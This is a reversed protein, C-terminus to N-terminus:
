EAEPIGEDTKTMIEPTEVTRLYLGYAIAIIVAALIYLRDAAASDSAFCSFMDILSHSIIVPWLNGCKYYVMTYIFGISIAFGIQIFTELTGQGTFLNVIHGAGFTVSSVIVAATVNGNKLMARFLFGRFLIEEAFGVMAFSLLAYILGPIQYNVHIGGWLNGTSIVLLPLFWVMEKINSIKGSLGYKEKLDNNRIFIYLLTCIILLGLTMVPSDDGQERLNGGAIVYIIICVVAFWIENKKYLEDIDIMNM